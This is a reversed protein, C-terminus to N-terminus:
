STGRVDVLFEYCSGDLLLTVRFKLDNEWFLWHISPDQVIALPLCIYAVREDNKSIAGGLFRKQIRGGASSAGDAEGNAWQVFHLHIPYRLNLACM